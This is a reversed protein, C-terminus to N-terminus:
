YEQQHKRYHMVEHLNAVQEQKMVANRNRNLHTRLFQNLYTLYNSASKM